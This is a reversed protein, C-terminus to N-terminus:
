LAAIYEFAAALRAAGKGDILAPGIVAMRARLAKDHLLNRITDAMLASPTESFIGGAVVAGTDAFDQVMRAHKTNLSFVISPTGVYATEYRTLGSGILACDAWAILEPMDPAYPIIEVPVPMDEADDVTGLVRVTLSGCELRALAEVVQRNLGAVNGGGIAVLIRMAQDPVLRAPSPIRHFESRLPFYTEGAFLRSYPALKYNYKGAGLYPVIVAAVPLPEDLSICEENMGEIVAVRLGAVTLARLFGIFEERSALTDTHSLDVLVTKASLTAALAVTAEADQQMDDANIERASFGHERILAMGNGVLPRCAFAAAHGACRFAQALAVCRM